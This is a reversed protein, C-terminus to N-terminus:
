VLFSFEQLRRRFVVARKRRSKRTSWFRAGVRLIKMKHFAGAEPELLTIACDAATSTQRRHVRSPDFKSGFSAERSSFADGNRRAQKEARLVLAFTTPAANHWVSHVGWGRQVTVIAVDKGPEIDRVVEFFPIIEPRIKDRCATMVWEELNPRTIGSISRDDEVGLLVHGGMLNAFAVL